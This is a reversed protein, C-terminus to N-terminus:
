FTRQRGRSYIDLSFGYHQEAFPYGAEANPDLSADLYINALDTCDPHTGVALESYSNVCSRMEKPGRTCEDFLGVWSGSM